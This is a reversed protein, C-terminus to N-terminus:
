QGLKKKIAEIVEQKSQIQKNLSAKREETTGQTELEKQMGAVAGQFTVLMKSMVDPPLM